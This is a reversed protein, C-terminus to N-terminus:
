KNFKELLFNIEEQKLKPFVEKINEPKMDAFSPQIKRLKRISDPNEKILPKVAKLAKTYEEEDAGPKWKCKPENLEKEMYDQAFYCAVGEELNTANKGGTPALLHITEHALQYCVQSMDEAASFSLQIIHQRCNDRYRIQPGNEIFEIGLLTYSCDRPGFSCEADQLMQGLRSTLTWKYERHSLKETTLLSTKM